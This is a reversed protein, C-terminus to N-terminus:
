PTPGTLGTNKDIVLRRAEGRSSTKVYTSGGVTLTVNQETWATADLSGVPYRSQVFGAGGGGTMKTANIYRMSHGRPLQDIQDSSTVAEFGLAGVSGTTEDLFVGWEKDQDDLYKYWKMSGTM